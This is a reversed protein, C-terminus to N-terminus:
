LLPVIELTIEVNSNDHRFEFKATTSGEILMQRITKKFKNDTIFTDDGFDDKEKMTPKLQIAMDLSSISVDFHKDQLNFDFEKIKGTGLNLPASEKAFIIIGTAMQVAGVNPLVNKGDFTVVKNATNYLYVGVSGYLQEHDGGDDNNVCNVSKIHIRVKKKDLCNSGNLFAKSLMSVPEGNMYTLKYSLPVIDITNFPKAFYADLTAQLKANDTVAVPQGGQTIIRINTKSFFSSGTNKQKYAASVVGWNLSGNLENSYKELDYESEILVYLRRGYKVERIYLWEKNMATSDTFLDAPSSVTNAIVPLCEQEFEYLYMYRYKESSYSFNDSVSVGMYFVSAGVDLGMKEELTSMSAQSSSKVNPMGQINSPRTLSQVKARLEDEINNGPFPKVSASTVKALNSTTSISVMKRKDMKIYLFEGKLLTEADIVGGPLIQLAKSGDAIVLESEIKQGRVEEKTLCMASNVPTSTATIEDKASQGSILTVTVNGNDSEYRSSIKSLAIKKYIKPGIKNTNKIAMKDLQCFATVQMICIMGLFCYYKKM